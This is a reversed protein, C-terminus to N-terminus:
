SFLFFYFFTLLLLLKDIRRIVFFLLLYSRYITGSNWIFVSGMLTICIEKPLRCNILDWRYIQKCMFEVNWSYLVAVALKMEVCLKEQRPSDNLQFMPVHSAPSSLSDTKKPRFIINHLFFNTVSPTKMKKIIIIM